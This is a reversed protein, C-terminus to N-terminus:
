SIQKIPAMMEAMVTDSRHKERAGTFEAPGDDKKEHEQRSKKRAVREDKAWLYPMYWPTKALRMEMTGMKRIEEVKEQLQVNFMESMSDKIEQKAKRSIDVRISEEQEYVWTIDPLFPATHKKIRQKIKRYVWPKLQTLIPELQYRAGPHVTSWVIYMNRRKPSCIVRVLIFQEFNFMDGLVGPLSRLDRRLWYEVKFAYDRARYTMDDDSRLLRLNRVEFKEVPAQPWLNGSRLKQAMLPTFPLPDETFKWADKGYLHLNKENESTCLTASLPENDGKGQIAHFPMAGKNSRSAPEAFHATLPTQSWQSANLHNGGSNRVRSQMQRGIIPFDFGSAKVGSSTNVITEHKRPNAHYRERHKRQKWRVLESRRLAPKSLAFM